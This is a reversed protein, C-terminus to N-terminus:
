YSQKSLLFGFIKFQVRFVTLSLLEEPGMKGNQIEEKTAFPKMDIGETKPDETERNISGDNHEKQGAKNAIKIQVFVFSILNELQM